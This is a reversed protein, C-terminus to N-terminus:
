AIEVIGSTSWQVVVNSGNGWFPFGPTDFYAIPLSASLSTIFKYLIMGAVQRTGAALSSFTVDAADFYGRNGGADDSVTLSALAVGGAPYGVADCSDRTTFGGMTTVNVESGATTNSMVLELKFTDATFNVAGRLIEAKAHNYIKNAM